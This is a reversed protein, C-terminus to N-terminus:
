SSLREDNRGTLEALTDTLEQPNPPKALVRDVDPPIEGDVVLRQGWGTLMIVPVTPALAKVANAVKRGDIRPMGLDTIVIDFPRGVRHATCFDDIGAQGGRSVTLTHGDAELTDRLSKLLVPDDDVVLIRLSAPTAAHLALQSRVAAATGPVSFALRMTTGRGVASDIQLEAGHRQAVGYVMALGLGTGREGKTTFFPELCRRRTEEDMGMGTDCIEVCVRAPGRMKPPLSPNDEAVRTRLTLTGGEPMADVANLVLNTLAERLESEVGMVVPLDPALETQLEIAIGRQEPMDRWRARTLDIVQQVLTNLDVPRRKAESDGPRYFERMRAVTEAVDGIARRITELFERARESLDPEKRLLIDTYIAVPSIANNIDHAIGSAMQGLARLREQQMVAHQTQHLDDYARQLSDHLQAQHAALAVHESLQRLFECESSTFGHSERRAAVLVGFVASEALLPAAMVSRLGASALRAPFGSAVQGADPEYILEGRVCRSLADDDIEVRAEEALSLQMALAAGMSGVKAVTLHKRAPDYRCILCLDLPLEAEVKGVVIQFINSPDQHEGIARTIQSLLALRELQSELKAEAQKRETVDQFTGRVKVVRGNEVLPQCISRVWKHAGKASIFELELDYPTGHEVAAKVAAEIRTRSEGPYFELGMQVSTEADPELDHIRAVEETWHGKGTAPDFEWGGVRALRGTEQLLRASEILSAGAHALEASNEAVRTELREKAARIALEARRREALQRRILVLALGLFCFALVGSGIIIWRVIAMSHRADAERGELLTREAQLMQDVLNRIDAHLRQGTGALVERTAADAGQKRRLDIITQSVALRRSILAAVAEVRQQQLPSDATLRRLQQLEAPAGQEARHFPELYSDDGTIVYGRLGTQAETAAVMLSELHDMVVHSRDVSASDDRWQNLALWSAAAIVALCTLSVAFGAQVKRQITSLM